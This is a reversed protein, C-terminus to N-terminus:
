EGKVSDGDKIVETINEGKDEMKEIEDAQAPVDKLGALLGL